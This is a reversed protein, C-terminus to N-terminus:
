RFPHKEAFDIQRGLSSYHQSISLCLASLGRITDASFDKKSYDGSGLSRLPNTLATQIQSMLDDMKRSQSTRLLPLASNIAYLTPVDMPMMGQKGKQGQSDSHIHISINDVFQQVYTLPKNLENTNNALEELELAALCALQPFSESYKIHDM